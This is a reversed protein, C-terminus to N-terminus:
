GRGALVLERESRATGAGNPEAWAARATSATPATSAASTRTAALYRRAASHDPARDPRRISMWLPVAIFALLFPVALVLNWIIASSV